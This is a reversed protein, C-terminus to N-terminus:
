TPSSASFYFFTSMRCKRETVRHWPEVPVTRRALHGRGAVGLWRRLRRLVLWLLAHRRHWCCSQQGRSALPRAPGLAHCELWFTTHVLPYYQPLSTPHLWILELGFPTRLTPNNLIYADDDWIFGNKLSPLYGGADPGGAGRRRPSHHSSPLRAAPRRDARAATANSM